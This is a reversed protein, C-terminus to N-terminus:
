DVVVSLDGTGLYFSGLLLSKKKDGKLLRVIFINSFIDIAPVITILVINIIFVIGSIIIYM